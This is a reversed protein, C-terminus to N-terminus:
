DGGNRFSSKQGTVLRARQYHGKASEQSLRFIGRDYSGLDQVVFYLGVGEEHVLPPWPM